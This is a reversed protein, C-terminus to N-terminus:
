FGRLRPDAAHHEAVYQALTRGDLSELPEAYPSGTSSAAAPSVLAPLSLAVSALGLVIAGSTRSVNSKRTMM